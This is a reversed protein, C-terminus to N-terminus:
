KEWQNGGKNKISGEFHLKLFLKLVFGIVAFGIFCLAMLRYGGIGNMIGMLYPGVFSAVFLCLNVVSFNNSYNKSGFVKSTYTSQTPTVGGFSLGTMIFAAILVVFNETYVAVATIVSALGLGISVVSIVFRSGKADLVFGFVLRGLGNFISVLGAVTTAVLISDTMTQALPSANSIVSLGIASM